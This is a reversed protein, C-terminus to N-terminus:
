RPRAKWFYNKMGFGEHYKRFTLEVPLDVSVGDAECDTLQVYLRGGGDLDVVAHGVATPGGDFIHDNTFTFVTGVRSLKTEELGGRHGCEICVRHIPFQVVACAPCRGGYLPLLEKRDRFLAVPTSVDPVTSEKRVLRRSRAYPGYSALSHKAEIQSFVSRSPRHAAIQETVRFVVADAGDGYGALLILDNPQARELAAALLLLPEAAGTDGLTAWFGDHLQRTPDLGVAKAVRAGARPNPAALAATALAEAPRGARALVSRVAETVVRAYGYKTEFSGPFARLFDQEETRWTGHFEDTVTATAVIEALGADSGLLVAAGADGCNQEALTDPEGMRCDGACVLARQASGATIGDLAALLASTAARLSDTVDVTRASPRCDLVAAVTAAAQKERYPSTTSAFYVADVGRGDPCAALGANVALTLSDEDSAAVAKEGPLSPQGWEKAIVNRPLRLRPICTGFGLIGPM